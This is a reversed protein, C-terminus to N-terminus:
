KDRMWASVDPWFERIDGFEYQEFIAVEAALAYGFDLNQVDQLGKTLDCRSADGSINFNQRCAMPRVEYITCSRKGEQTPTSLFPCDVGMYKSVLGSHRDVMGEMSDFDQFHFGIQKPTKNILHGIKQAEYGSMVVSMHCCHHCGDGCVVHPAIIRGAVEVVEVLRVHKKQLKDSSQAIDVCERQFPGHFFGSEMIKEYTEEVELFEDADLKTPMMDDGCCRVM